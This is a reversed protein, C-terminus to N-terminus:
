ALAMDALLAEKQQKIMIDTIEHLGKCGSEVTECLERTARCLASAGLALENLGDLTTGVCDPLLTSKAM